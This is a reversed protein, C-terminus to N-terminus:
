LHCKNQSKKTSRLSNGYFYILKHHESHKEESGLRVHCDALQCDPLQPHGNQQNYNISNTPAWPQWVHKGELESKGEWNFPLAPALTEWILGIIAKNEKESVHPLCSTFNTDCCEQEEYWALKIQRKHKLFSLLDPAWSESASDKSQM